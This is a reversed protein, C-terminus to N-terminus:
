HTFSINSVGGQFGGKIAPLRTLWILWFRGSAGADPHLVTISTANVTEAVETMATQTAPPTTADSAFLDVSTGNGLLRLRVAGVPKVSGLDILLGVGPKLNGLDPSRYIQTHWATVPDADIAYKAEGFHPDQHNGYPDFEAVTAIAIPDTGTTPHLSPTGTPTTTPTTFRFYNSPGVRALQAIALAIVVIVAAAAARARRGAPLRPRQWWPHDRGLEAPVGASLDSTYSSEPHHVGSVGRLAGVFAAPTTIEAMGRRLQVDNIARVVIADVDRPVGGRVFCPPKLHGDVFPAPPLASREPPGPWRSTLAAYLLEALAVTDSHESAFDGDHPLDDRGAAVGSSGLGTLRPEGAGTFRVTRPSAIVHSLGIAHAGAVGSGIQSVLEVAVAPEMPGNELRDELSGGSLYETVVFALGAVEGADYVRVLCPHALKAAARAQALVAAVRPHDHPVLLVAVQRALVEDYARWFQGVQRDPLPSGEPAETTDALVVDLRYREAFLHGALVAPNATM